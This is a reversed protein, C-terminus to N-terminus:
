ECTKQTLSSSGLDVEVVAVIVLMLIMFQPMLYVNDVLGHIHAGLLALALFLNEKKYHGLTIKFQMYLQHLLGILGVIGMTGLVHIFTNHYMQYDKPGERAFIGGGFLPHRKFVNWADNWVMFRFNDDFGTRLFYDFLPLIKNKGILFIIALVAASVLFSILHELKRDSKKFTLYVLLPLILIYALIGGRSLTFLLMVSQFVMVPVLLYGRDLTTIFYVAIVIFMVLYTAIQNSIGWGLVLEKDIMEQVFDEAQIFHIVVQISILIGLIFMMQLLYKKNDGQFTNVFFIYILAYVIGISAYFWYNLSLEAANFSSLFMALAMIIIGPLMKGKNFKVKFKVIHIVMGSILVIPTLYLYLPIDSFSLPLTSVMFLANFLLPIIPMTDKSFIFVVMMLGLYIFIGISELKLTWFCLTVFSVLILFKLSHTFDIIKKM